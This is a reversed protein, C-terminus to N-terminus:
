SVAHFPAMAAWFGFIGLSLQTIENRSTKIQRSIHENGVLSDHTQRHLSPRGSAQTIVHKINLHICNIAKKIILIQSLLLFNFGAQRTQYDHIQDTKRFLNKLSDPVSNHSVKCMFTCLQQHRRVDLNTLGIRILLDTFWFEYGCKTIIRVARNQLRQLKNGPTMSLCGWVQSCCDFYPQILTKDVLKLIKLDVFTRLRKLANLSRNVKSTILNVKEISTLAKDIM